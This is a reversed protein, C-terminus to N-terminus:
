RRSLSTTHTKTAPLFNEMMWVEPKSQGAAFALRKGDPHLSLDRLREMALGVKQPQGGAASVQWLEFTQDSNAPKAPGQRRLTFLIKQADPTWILRSQAVMDGSVQFVDRAGGGGIPIIKLTVTQPKATDGVAFALQQGNPSLGMSAIGNPRSVSFIEKEGGGQLDHAQITSTKKTFNIQLYLLTKGDPSMTPFRYNNGEEQALVTAAGTHVDIRYIGTRGQRNQGGALISSGDPWWQPRSIIGLNVAVEREQGTDLSRIVVVKDRSFSAAGGPGRQSVYALYKGDPSWAPASNSGVYRQSLPAPAELLKGLNLDIGAVYVDDMGTDLGYYFSRNRTFGM